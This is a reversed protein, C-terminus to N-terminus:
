FNNGADTGGVYSANVSAALNDRYLALNMLIGFYAQTIRNNVALGNTALSMSIGYGRGSPGHGFVNTVDNNLVRPGIGTLYIGIADASAGFVTSGGTSVIQNNRVVNSAGQVNIGVFTNQDARIDEVLHGQSAGGTSELVIGQNFGRVTGNRITINQRDLAYIGMANTGLGAALGGLKFGNMDLTVNNTQIEIAHGSPMSTALDGKLCYVGQVTIVAPLAGIPTCNITEARAPPIAVPAIAVLLSVALKVARM